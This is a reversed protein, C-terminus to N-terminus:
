DNKFVGMLWLGFLLVPLYSLIPEKIGFELGYIIFLFISSGYYLAFGSLFVIYLDRGDTPDDRTMYLILAGLLFGAILMFM